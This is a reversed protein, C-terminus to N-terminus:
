RLLNLISLVILLCSISGGLLGFFTPYRFFIADIDHSSRDLREVFSRTEMYINLKREIRRITAPTVLLCLGLVLGLFCAVKGVWAGTQFLIEGISSNYNAGFFIRTFDAIDVKFFFFILAFLSAAVLCGGMIVPHGYILEDTSISKDLFLLKKDVDMSRNLITSLNRATSPAFLLLLSMAMGLMGVVLTMIEVAQLGIEFLINM